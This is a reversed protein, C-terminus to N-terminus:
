YKRQKNEGRQMGGPKKLATKFSSNENRCFIKDETSRSLCESPFFLLKYCCAHFSYEFDHM